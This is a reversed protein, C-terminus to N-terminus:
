VFWGVRLFTGDLNDHGAGGGVPGQQLRVDVVLFGFFPQFFRKLSM